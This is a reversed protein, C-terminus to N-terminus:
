FLKLQDVEGERRLSTDDLYAEIEIGFHRLQDIEKIGEYMEVDGEIDIKPSLIPHLDAVIKNTGSLPRLFRVLDDLEEFKRIACTTNPNSVHGAMVLFSEVCYQDEEPPPDIRCSEYHDTHCGLNSETFNMVYLVDTPFIYDKNPLM